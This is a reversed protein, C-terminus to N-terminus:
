HRLFALLDALQQPTLDTEMGEPMLSLGTNKLEEIEVRTIVIVDKGNLLTLSAPSESLIMGNVVRGDTTAVIYNFFRPDVSRNPELINQLFEQKSRTRLAGLGPGVDITKPSLHLIGETSTRRNHCNACKKLFIERGSDVNGVMGLVQETVAAIKEKRESPTAVEFLQKAREQIEPDPHRVLQDRRATGLANARIGGEAIADLLLRTRDSRALLSALIAERVVGTYSSWNELLAASAQEGPLSSLARVAARQVDHPEQPTLLERLRPASEEAPALAFLSIAEVRETPNRTTDAAVAFMRASWRSLTQSVNAQETVPQLPVAAAHLRGVLPSLAALQWRTPEERDDGAVLKLFRAAEDVNKRNAVTDALERVFPIAGEGPTELFDRTDALLRTLLDVEYESVSSLVATRFRPDRADNILLRGLATLVAVRSAELRMAEGLTFTAQFRVRANGDEARALVGPVLKPFKELRSESLRLAQERVEAASDGMAAGVFEPKLAGLGELTWLAHLRGVATQSTRALEELPKIAAADQRNVLLRQATLRWWANGDELLAVLQTSSAQSLSPQRSPPAADHVVRYIRGRDDGARFDLGKQM